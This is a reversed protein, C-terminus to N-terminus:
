SPVLEIGFIALREELRGIPNDNPCQPTVAHIEMFRTLLLCASNRSMMKCNDASAREFGDRARVRCSIFESVPM